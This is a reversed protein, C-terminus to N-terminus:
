FEKLVSRKMIREEGLIVMLSGQVKTNHLFLAKKEERYHNNVLGLHSLRGKKREKLENKNEWSCGHVKMSFRTKLPNQNYKQNAKPNLQHHYLTTTTPNFSLQESPGFAWEKKREDEFLWWKPNIYTLSAKDKKISLNNHIRKWTVLFRVM